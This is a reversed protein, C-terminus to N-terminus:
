SRAREREPDPLEDYADLRMLVKRMMGRHRGHNSIPIGLVRCVDDITEVDPRDVAARVRAPTVGEPVHVDLGSLSGAPERQSFDVWRQGNGEPPASPESDAEPGPPDTRDARDAPAPEQAAEDAEDDSVGYSEVEHIGFDILRQRITQYGVDVDLSEHVARMNGDHTAYLDALLEPDDYAPEEGEGLDIPEGCHPCELM